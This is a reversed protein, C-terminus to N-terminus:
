DADSRRRLLYFVYGYSDAHRRYLEIERRTESLTVYLCREGLRAGKLLFQMALTTKGTGPSGSVLYLCNQPFGGRIIDDLGDIGAPVILDALEEM